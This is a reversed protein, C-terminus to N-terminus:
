RRFEPSYCVGDSSESRVNGDPFGGQCCAIPTKHIVGNRERKGSIRKKTKQQTINLFLQKMCEM